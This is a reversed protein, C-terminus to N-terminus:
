LPEADTTGVISAASVDTPGNRFHWFIKGAQDIEIVRNNFQDTILINGPHNFQGGGGASATGATCLVVAATVLASVGFRVVSRYRTNLDSKLTLNTLFTPKQRTISKYRRIECKM